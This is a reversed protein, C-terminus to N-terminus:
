PRAPAAAAAPAMVQAREARALRQSSIAALADYARTFARPEAGPVGRLNEAWRYGIPQYLLEAEVAFPGTGQGVPIRL